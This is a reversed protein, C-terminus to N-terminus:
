GWGTYDCGATLLAFRGDRLKFVGVWDSGANDGAVTGLVDVVDQWTFSDQSVPTDTIPRSASWKRPHTKPDAYSFVHGWDSDIDGADLEELIM